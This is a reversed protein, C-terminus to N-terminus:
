GNFANKRKLRNILFRIYRLQGYQSHITENQRVKCSEGIIRLEEKKLWSIFKEKNM